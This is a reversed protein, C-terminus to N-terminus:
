TRSICLVTLLPPHLRARPRAPVVSPRPRTLISSRRMGAGPRVLLLVTALLALVCAMALMNSHGSGCDACPEDAAVTDARHDGAGTSASAAVTTRHGVETATHADLTHADLSHMALLGVIVAGTGVILLLMTRAMSRGTRVRDTLAILSM